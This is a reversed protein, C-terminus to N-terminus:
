FQIDCKLEEAIQKITSRLDFTRLASSYWEGDLKYDIFTKHLAQEIDYANSSYVKFVLEIPFPRTDLQKIRQEVNKSYGIKFKDACQLVYVYGYKNKNKNLKTNSSISSYFWEQEKHKNIEIIEEDSYAQMYEILGDILEKVDSPKIWFGPQYTPIYGDADDKFIVVLNSM